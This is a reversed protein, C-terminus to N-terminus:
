KRRRLIMYDTLVCISATGLLLFVMRWISDWDVGKGGFNAPQSQAPSGDFPTVYPKPVYGTRVTGDGDTYSIYYYRYDATDIEGLVTVEANKPLSCVTLLDTLYPYKYLSLGNTLYGKGDTFGVPEKLYEEEPLEECSTKLVLATSYTRSNEDFVALVNYLETEGLKLATHTQSERSYGLYPFFEAGNLTEFDFAVFLSNPNTRVVSFRASEESFIPADAGNVPISRVTPLTIERTQVIFDGEYLLYVGGDEVGFAFSLVPTDETQSYVATRGLPYATQDKACRYLRNDSLAYVTREYDVAMQGSLVPINCIREGTVSSDLFESETFRCVSGDSFAVYLDGYIDSALLRATYSLSPKPANDLTWQGDEGASLRYFYNNDTVFYYTGYVCAAGVLGSQFNNFTYVPTEPAGLDYLSLASGNAAALTKGDSALLTVEQTVSVAGITGTEADCVSVRSNGNDAIFLLDDALYLAGADSLRNEAPSSACIEYDTFAATEPSYQRIRDDCVAYILGDWVSLASYGGQYSSIVRSATLDYVYLTKATDTYYLIGSYVALSVITESDTLKRLFGSDDARCLIKGGETYYLVGNDQALAPKSSINSVIPIGAASDLNDLTTRLIQSANTFYVVDSFITFSNCVLSTKKQTMSPLELEYLYLSVDRFYLSGDESFQLEEIINNEPDANATHEYRSYTGSSRNYLYICNGDAIATYGATVSVDSPASLPLYQEYSAPLILQDGTPEDATPATAATTKTPAQQAIESILAGTSTAGRSEPTGAHSFIGSQASIGGFISCVCLIAILFRKMCM